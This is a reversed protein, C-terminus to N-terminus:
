KYLWYRDNVKDVVIIDRKTFNVLIDMYDFYLHLFTNKSTLKKSARYKLRKRIKDSLKM